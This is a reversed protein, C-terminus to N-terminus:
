KPEEAEPTSLVARIEPVGAVRIRSIKCDAWAPGGETIQRRLSREADERTAFIGFNDQDFHIEYVYFFSGQQRESM